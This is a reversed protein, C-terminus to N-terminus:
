PEYQSSGVSVRAGVTDSVAYVRDQMVVSDAVLSEGPLLRFPSEPTADDGFEIRVIQAGSSVNSIVLYNRVGTPDGLIQQSDTNITFKLSGRLYAVRHRDQVQVVPTKARGAFRLGVEDRPRAILDVTTGPPILDPGRPFVPPFADPNQM